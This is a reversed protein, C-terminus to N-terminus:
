NRGGSAEDLALWDDMGGGGFAYPLFAEPDVTTLNTQDSVLDAETYAAGRLEEVEVDELPDHTTRGLTVSGSGTEFRHVRSEFSVKVLTPDFQFGRGTADPLYKYHFVTRTGSTAERSTEMTADLLLLSEGYRTAQGTIGDDTRELSVAAQKKPEGLVDRGWRVARDTSMPMSLCYWGITDEHRARVYLGGGAFSGVCNSRGVEVIEVEALPQDTPELGPPLIREVIAPATLYRVSLARTDLYRNTSMRDQIAEVEGPTRVFGTVDLRM